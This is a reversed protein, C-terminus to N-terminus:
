WPMPIEERGSALLLVKPTVIEEAKYSVMLCNPITLSLEVPKVWTLLYKSVLLLTRTVSLVLSMRMCDPPKSRPECYLFENLRLLLILLFSPLLEKLYWVFSM